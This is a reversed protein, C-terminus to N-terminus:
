LNDEEGLTEWQEDTYVTGSIRVVVCRNNSGRLKYLFEVHSNGAIDRVGCRDLHDIMTDAAAHAEEVSGDKEAVLEVMGTEILDLYQRWNDISSFMARQQDSPISM